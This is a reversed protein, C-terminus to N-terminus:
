KLSRELSKQIADFWDDAEQQTDVLLPDFYGNRSISCEYPKSWINTKAIAIITHKDIQALRLYTANKYIKLLLNMSYGEKACASRWTNKVDPAFTGQKVTAASTGM